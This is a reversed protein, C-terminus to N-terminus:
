RAGTGRSAPTPAQPGSAHFTVATQERHLEELAHLQRHGRHLLDDLVAPDLREDSEALQRLAEWCAIKGTVGARLMELEVVTSLPSRRVLRGNAKLRGLKEATWGAYVKYRRAPIHLRRLLDTLSRRDKAIEGAIAELTPGLDTGRCSRALYRARDTGATAGALHDNLYVSLLETHTRRASASTRAPRTRTAHSM